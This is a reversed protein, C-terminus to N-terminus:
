YPLSHTKIRSSAMSEALGNSLPYHPSSTIHKFGIPSLFDKMEQYSYQPGNDSKLIEPIAHRAFISRLENIVGQPTTITLKTVEPFRSFYDVVPLYM